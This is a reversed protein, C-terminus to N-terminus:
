LKYIWVDKLRLREKVPDAREVAQKETQFGTMQVRFYERGKLTISSQHVPVGQKRAM